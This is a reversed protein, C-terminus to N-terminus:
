NKYFSNIHDDARVFTAKFLFYVSASIICYIFLEDANKLWEKRRISVVLAYLVWFFLGALVILALWAYGATENTIGLFMADNYSKILELSSRLYGPLNVHLLRASIGITFLYSAM